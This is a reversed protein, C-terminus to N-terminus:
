VRERCSARGIEPYTQFFGSANTEAHFLSSNQQTLLKQWFLSIHGLIEKHTRLSSTLVKLAAADSHNLYNRLLLPSFSGLAVVVSDATFTGESTEVGTVKDGDVVLHKVTVNQRFTVGLGAAMKALAQTFKFCDGTEDGLVPLGTTDVAQPTVNGHAYAILSTLAPAGFAAASLFTRPSHWM